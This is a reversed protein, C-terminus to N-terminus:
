FPRGREMAACSYRTAQFRSKLLRSLFRLIQQHARSTRQERSAFERYLTRAVTRWFSAATLAGLFDRREM